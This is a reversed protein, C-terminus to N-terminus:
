AALKTLTGELRSQTAADLAFQLRTVNNEAGIIRARVPIADITIEVQTGVPQPLTAEIRCGDSSVDVMTVTARPAAGAQVLVPTRCQRRQSHRRDGATKIASLFDSVETALQDSQRSLEDATGLLQHAAGGTTAAGENVLTISATVERTGSSAEQVNRAIEGTAATQEEVAAAIASASETISSITHGIGGIASVADRTVAQVSNIQTVIDETARATQTALNKVENAVVAFGKGADGARAAEITANLALLNTQSAIDNILTVVAGIRSTAESLSLVIGNVRGAEEAARRSIESSTAVQRAIEQESAALQEAAAAVTEVNVSAQEAAAAVVTSQRSTDEAVSTMSQASDRLQHASATVGQLVAFVSTNFDATLREVAEQRRNRATQEAAQAAELRKRAQGNEKFVELARIMEGIEDQRTTQRIEVDLNGDALERMASISRKLPLALSRRAITWSLLISLLGVLVTAGVMMRLTSNAATLFEAKKIGVYLVGIVNGGADLIPDYATMYPEGLIEVEGRFPAKKNFVADYAATRALQTGVARGGDAKIVNTTIRTDGMFVTATGGVLVKVKDVVEFNGNLVHDGAMMKGDAVAFATGKAKLADWAVKMNTDVRERAADAASAHLLSRSLLTVSLGLLLVGSVALAMIRPVIGMTAIRRRFSVIM